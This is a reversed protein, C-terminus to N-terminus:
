KGETHSGKQLHLVFAALRAPHLATYRIPPLCPLRCTTCMCPLRKCTESPQPDSPYTGIRLIGAPKLSFSPRPKKQALGSQEATHRRTPVRHTNGLERGM